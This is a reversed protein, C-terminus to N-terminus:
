NIDKSEITRLTNIFIKTLQDSMNFRKANIELSKWIDGEKTRETAAKWDYFMEVIDMLNMDNIGDSYHEPHHSNVYYHHDLAVKLKGLSDKYEVSGYKLTKLIPTWEDFLEKEPSVLKSNDHNKGRELMQTCFDILYNNVKKIHELTDAKSDYPIQNIEM